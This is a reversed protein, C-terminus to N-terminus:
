VFAFIESDVTCHMVATTKAFAMVLDSHGEKSKYMQVFLVVFYCWFFCLEIM